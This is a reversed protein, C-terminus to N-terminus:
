GYGGVKTASFAEPGAASIEPTGRTGTISRIRSHSKPDARLTKRRCPSANPQAAVAVNAHVLDSTDGHIVRARTAAARIEAVNTAAPSSNDDIREHDGLRSPPDSAAPDTQGM